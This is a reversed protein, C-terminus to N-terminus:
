VGRPRALDDKLTNGTRVNGYTLIVLVNDATSAPNYALRLGVSKVSDGGGLPLQATGGNGVCATMLLGSGGVGLTGSTEQALPVVQGGGSAYRPITDDPGAGVGTLQGMSSAHLELWTPAAAASSTDVSVFNCPLAGGSSDVLDVSMNQQNTSMMIIKTFPRSYSRGM